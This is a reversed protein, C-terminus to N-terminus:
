RPRARGFAGFRERQRHKVRVRGGSGAVPVPRDEINRRRGGGEEFAREWVADTIVDRAQERRANNDQLAPDGCLYRIAEEYSMQTELWEYLAKRRMREAELAYRVLFSAIRAEGCRVLAYQEIAARAKKTLPERPLIAPVARTKKKTM